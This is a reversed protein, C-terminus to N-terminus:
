LCLVQPADRHRCHRLATSFLLPWAQDGLTLKGIRV